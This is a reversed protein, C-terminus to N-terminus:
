SSCRCTSRCRGHSSRPAYCSMRPPIATKRLTSCATMLGLARTVCATWPSASCAAICSWSTRGRSPGIRLMSSLFRTPRPDLASGPWSSGESTARDLAEATATLSDGSYTGSRVIGGQPDTLMLTGGLLGPNVIQVDVSLPYRIRWLRGPEMPVIEYTGVRLVSEFPPRSQLFSEFRAQLASPVTGADLGSIAAAAASEPFPLRDAPPGGPDAAFFGSEQWSLSWRRAPDAVTWRSRGGVYPPRDVGTVSVRDPLRATTSRLASTLIEPIPVSGHTQTDRAANGLLSTGDTGAALDVDLPLVVANELIELALDIHPLETETNECSLELDLLDPRREALRAFAATNPKVFELLDVLYAAPSLVSACHRCDCDDLDGFL